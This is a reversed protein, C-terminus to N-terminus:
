REPRWRRVAAIFGDPEVLSVILAARCWRISLDKV